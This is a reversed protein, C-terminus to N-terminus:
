ASSPMRSRTIHSSNLRTSKRDGFEGYDGRLRRELGGNVFRRCWLNRRSMREMRGSERMRPVEVNGPIAWIGCSSMGANMTLEPAM